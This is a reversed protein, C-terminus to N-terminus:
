HQCQCLGSGWHRPCLHTDCHPCSYNSGRDRLLLDCIYKIPYHPRTSDRKWSGTCHLHPPPPCESESPVRTHHLLKTVQEVGWQNKPTKKKDAVAQEQAMRMAGLEQAILVENGTTITQAPTAWHSPLVNKHLTELLKFHM